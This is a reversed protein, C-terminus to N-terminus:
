LKTQAERLREREKQLDLISSKSVNKQVFFHSGKAGAGLYRRREWYPGRLKNNNGGQGAIDSLTIVKNQKGAGLIKVCKASIQLSKQHLFTM